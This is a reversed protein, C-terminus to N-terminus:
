LTKHLIMNMLTEKHDAIKKLILTERRSLESLKVIKKQREIDPIPVFLDKIDTKRIMPTGSGEQRGRILSVTHPHNLFWCLFEPTIDDRTIRLVLFSTSAIARQACDFVACNFSSGKCVLLLDGQQLLHGELQPRYAIKKSKKCLSEEYLDSVQLYCIDNVTPERLYVGSTITCIDGLKYQENTIM